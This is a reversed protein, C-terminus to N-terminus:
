LSAESDEALVAKLTEEAAAQGPSIFERSRLSAVQDQTLEGVNLEPIVDDSDKEADLGLVAYREMRAKELVGMALSLAKMNAALSGFPLGNKKCEAIEMWVLKAVAASMRYHEEKTEKAREVIVSAEAVMAEEVKERVREHLAESREGKKIGRTSMISEVTRGTRDYKKGIQAATYEGSSWMAEMQAIHRPSIATKTGGRHIKKRPVRVPIDDKSIESM